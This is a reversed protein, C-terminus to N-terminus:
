LNNELLVSYGAVKALALCRNFITLHLKQRLSEGTLDNNELFEIKNALDVDGIGRLWIKFDGRKMHFEVSQIPAKKIAFVFTQLNYAKINIPENLGLYFNFTNGFFKGKLLKRAFERNINLVGLYKEGQNTLKYYGKDPSFLYGMKTLGIVHMMVSPFKIGIEKSIEIPKVPKKHLLFAQLVESKAPSLSLVSMYWNYYISMLSFSPKEKLVDFICNFKQSPFIFLRRLVNFKL